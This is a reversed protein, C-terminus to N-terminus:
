EMNKFKSTQLFEPMPEQKNKLDGIIMGRDLLINYYQCSPEPILACAHCAARNLLGPGQGEHEACVPDLSCWRAHDFMNTMLKLFRTPEALESLGGLSGEVDPVAVYVLIGGMANEGTKSYIREKLSAAPYGAVTELQRILLHSITHLLIFRPNVTVDPELEYDFRKFRNQLSRARSIVPHLSEWCLLLKEDFTFFIGDGYLEIAPLWDTEGVIDPPVLLNGKLRKFGEFVLIEKLRTVSTVRSIGSMVDFSLSNKDLNMNKFAETHHRTVFDEDDFLDPITDTLAQYEKELLLGPTILKGYYPYGKKIEHIADEVQSSACRFESAVRMMLRKKEFPSMPRDIEKRRQTNTYLRDVLSGRRIRSEPPIVIASKNIPNHVRTDNITLIEALDTKEETQNQSPELNKKLWPQCSLNGYFVQAGPRFQASARCKKCSLEYAIGKKKILKLYPQHVDPQCQKQKQNANKNHAFRHWPIDAMHGDSHVLVWSVQQLQPKKNCETCRFPGDEQNFWPRIYLLGCEPNPCHMWSPFRIAPICVGDVLHNKLEKAIPPERLEEEIGIASRVQDVYQILRAACQGNRDTWERIDKPTVLYEPGRIISGVSCLRLVHSLRVPIFSDSM